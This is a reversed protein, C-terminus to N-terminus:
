QQGANITGHGDDMELFVLVPCGRPRKEGHTVAANWEGDSPRTLVHSTPESDWQVTLVPSPITRGIGHLCGRSTLTPIYALTSSYISPNYHIIIPSTKKKKKRIQM